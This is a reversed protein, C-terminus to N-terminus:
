YEKHSSGEARRLLVGGVAIMGAGWALFGVDWWIWQARPVTENVHPLGLVQHDVVGEVVNFVGWGFLLSGLLWRPSWHMHPRAAPRWLLVLGIAVFVWTAAHFLGDFLTNIRLHDLTDAPVAGTIMHHWQLVQHLVIGDFFGGLGLGLFIGAAVPFGTRASKM